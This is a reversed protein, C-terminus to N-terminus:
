ASLVDADKAVASASVLKAASSGKVCDSLGLTDALGMARINTFSSVQDSLEHNNQCKFNFM